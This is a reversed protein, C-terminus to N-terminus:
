LVLFVRRRETGEFVETVETGAEFVSMVRDISFALSLGVMVGPPCSARETSKDESPPKEDLVHGNQLPGLSPTAEAPHPSVQTVVSM